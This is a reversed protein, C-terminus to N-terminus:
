IITVNLNRWLTGGRYSSGCTFGEIGGFFNSGAGGWSTEGKNLCSKEAEM